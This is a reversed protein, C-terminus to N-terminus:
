KKMAKRFKELGKIVTPKYPMPGFLGRKAQAYHKKCLGKAEYYSNCGPYECRRRNAKIRGPRLTGQVSQRYHEKCYGDKSVPRVCNPIKCGM